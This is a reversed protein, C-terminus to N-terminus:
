EGNECARECYSQYANVERKFDEILSLLDNCKEYATWCNSDEVAATTASYVRVAILELETM